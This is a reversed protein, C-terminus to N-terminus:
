TNTTNGSHLAQSHLGIGSPSALNYGNQTKKIFQRAATFKRWAVRPQPELKTM